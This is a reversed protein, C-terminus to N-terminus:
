LYNERLFLELLKFPSLIDRKTDCANAIGTVSFIEGIADRKVLRHKYVVGPAYVKVTGEPTQQIVVTATPGPAFCHSIKDSISILM